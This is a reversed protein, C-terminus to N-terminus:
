ASAAVSAPRCDYALLISGLRREMERLEALQSDSLQAFQPGPELAVVCYGLRRELDSVLALQSESLEKVKPM